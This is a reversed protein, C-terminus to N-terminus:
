KEPESFRVLQAIMAAALRLEKEGLKPLMATIQVAIPNPAVSVPIPKELERQYARVAEVATTM